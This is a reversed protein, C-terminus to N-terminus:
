SRQELTILTRGDKKEISRVAFTSNHDLLFEGGSDGSGYHTLDLGRVASIKLMVGHEDMYGEATSANPSTSTYGPWRLEKGGQAQQMNQLFEDKAKPDNFYLGRYVEVPHDMTKVQSFIKPMAQRVEQLREEAFYAADPRLPLGRLEDNIWASATYHDLVGEEDDTLKPRAADTIVGAPKTQAKAALARKAVKDALELKKGSAKVGLQRKVEHIEQVSLKLLHEKFREVPVKGQRVQEGLNVLHEVKPREKRARPGREPKAAPKQGSPKEGAPKKGGTGPKCHGHEDRECDSFFSGKVIAEVDLAELAECLIRALKNQQM